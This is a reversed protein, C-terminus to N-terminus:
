NQPLKIRIVFIFVIAIVTGLVLGIAIGTEFQFDNPSNAPSEPIKTKTTVIDNVTKTEPIEEFDNQISKVHIESQTANFHMESSINTFKATLTIPETTSSGGFLTSHTLLTYTGTQNIPVYLVTSLDDKNKVPYFGGGQSFVSNGLWDLSVWGLFYGFVGSPVNTQVIQGSPDMVFVALNTDDNTWSLEVAASNISENQIDFYYQRWDGAMYRNSMDFAGKTYGNGYLVDDSQIGKILITSDNELVPQKIVFSVPSNVTHMDSEFTLFGQYVGTQLDNPVVLTVDLTSSNKPPVSITENDSWLVSWKEKEYYSASLTYDMSTSNQNTDGLWYSYRTPVPYVGVLPVGQFKENPESIRLEQVTGWSGARNIMSLEDSTIKTDNDNDLWDYVYLSSIKLDDAYVDSTNNMFDAFPFNLNLIMLSSENPIANQPNFFESLNVFFAM